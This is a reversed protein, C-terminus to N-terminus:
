KLLPLFLNVFHGQISWRNLMESCLMMFKNVESSKELLRTLHCFLAQLRLFLEKDTVRHGSFAQQWFGTALNRSM